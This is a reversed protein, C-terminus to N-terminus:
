IVESFLSSLNFSVGRLKQFILSKPLVDQSLLGSTVEAISLRLPSCQQDVSVAEAHFGLLRGLILQVNRSILSHTIFLILCWQIINFILSLAACSSCLCRQTRLSWM